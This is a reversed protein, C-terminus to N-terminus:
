SALSPAFLFGSLDQMGTGAPAFEPTEVRCDVLLYGASEAAERRARLERLKRGANHAPTMTFALALAQAPSMAGQLVQGIRSLMVSGSLRSRELAEKYKSAARKNRQTAGRGATVAYPASARATRAVNSSAKTPTEGKARVQPQRKASVPRLVLHPKKDTVSWREM